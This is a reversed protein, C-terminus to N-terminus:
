TKGTKQEIYQDLGRRVIEAFSLGEKKAIKRVAALQKRTLYINIRQLDRSQRMITYIRRRKQKKDLM